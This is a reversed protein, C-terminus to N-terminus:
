AAGGIAASVRWAEAFELNPIWALEREAAPRKHSPVVLVPCHARRVLEEAVSGLLVHRLASDGHTSTVVLDIDNASTRAVLETVATGTAVQMDADVNALPLSNVIRDLEDEAKVLEAEMVQTLEPAAVSLDAGVFPPTVVHMVELNAGLMGAFRAAYDAGEKACASFDVPVLVKRPIASTRAHDRVILVPCPSHRVIKEATSGLMFHKLGTRGHTAAVILDANVEAALATIQRWPHGRLIHCEEPAILRGFRRRMEHQFRRTLEAPSLFHQVESNYAHVLNITADFREELPVVYALARFSEESLDTAVLITQLDLSEECSQEPLSRSAPLKATAKM